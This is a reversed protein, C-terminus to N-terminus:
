RLIAAPPDRGGRHVAPRHCRLVRMSGPRYTNTRPFETVTVVSWKLTVPEDSM